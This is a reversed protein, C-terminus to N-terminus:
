SGFLHNFAEFYAFSLRQLSGLLVLQTFLPAISDPRAAKITVGIGRKDKRDQRESGGITV